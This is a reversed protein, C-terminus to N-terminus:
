EITFNLYEETAYGRPQKKFGPTDQIWTKADVTLDDKLFIYHPAKSTNFAIEERKCPIRWNGKTSTQRSKHNNYIGDLFKEPYKPIPIDRLIWNKDYEKISTPEDLFKRDFKSGYVLSKYYKDNIALSPFFDYFFGDRDKLSLFLLKNNKIVPSNKMFQYGNKILDKKLVHNLQDNKVLINNYKNLNIITDCGGGDIKIVDRERMMGILTGYTAILHVNYKEFLTIIDCIKHIRSM